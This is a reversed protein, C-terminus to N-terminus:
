FIEWPNIRGQESCGILFLNRVFNVPASIKGRTFLSVGPVFAKPEGLAYIRRELRLHYKGKTQIWYRGDLVMQRNLRVIKKRRQPKVVFPFQFFQPAELKPVLVKLPHLIVFPLVPVALFFIFLPNAIDIALNGVQPRSM